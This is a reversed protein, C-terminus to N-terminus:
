VLTYFSIFFIIDYTSSQIILHVPRSEYSDPDDDYHRTRDDQLSCRTCEVRIMYINIYVCACVLLMSM